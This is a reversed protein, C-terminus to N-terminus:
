RGAIADEPPPGPSVDCGAEAGRLRQYAEVLDAVLALNAPTEDGSVDPHLARIRRRYAARIETQDDDPGVGLVRRADGVGIM